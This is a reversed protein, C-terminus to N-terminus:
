VISSMANGIEKFFNRIGRPKEVGSLFVVIDDHGAQRAEDAAEKLKSNAGSHVLLKLIELDGKGSAIMLVNYSRADRTNVDAGREILLKCMELNGNDVAIFLSRRVKAGHDLLYRAMNVNGNNVAAYLACNGSKSTANVNAGRNVLLELIDQRNMKAAMILPTYWNENTSEIMKPTALVDVVNYHGFLVAMHLANNHNKREYSKVDVKKDSALLKVLEVCGQSSALHLPTFLNDDSADIPSGNETLLKFVDVNCYYAAFHIPYQKEVNTANVNAGNAILYRCVEADGHKAAIHLPTDGNKNKANVDAEADVLLKVVQFNNALHLATNGDNTDALNVNVGASILEVVSDVNGSKTAFIIPYM